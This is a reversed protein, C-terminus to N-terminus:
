RTLPRLWHERGTMDTEATLLADLATVYQGIRRSGSHPFAGFPCLILGAHAVNAAALVRFDDINETVITRQEAQAVAFLLDDPQTRLDTREAVAEVDHGRRRLQQAVAPSIMEDLLLKM